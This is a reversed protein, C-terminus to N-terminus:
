TAALQVHESALVKLRQRKIMARGAVLRFAFLAPNLAAASGM